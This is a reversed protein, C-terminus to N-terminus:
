FIEQNSYVYRTWTGGVFWQCRLKEMYFLATLISEHQRVPIHYLHCCLFIKKEPFASQSKIQTIWNLLWLCM